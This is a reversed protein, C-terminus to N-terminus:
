GSFNVEGDNFLMEMYAAADAAIKNVADITKHQRVIEVIEDIEDIALRSEMSIQDVLEDDRAAHVILLPMPKFDPCFSVFDWSKADFVWMNGNMQPAHKKPASLEDIYRMHARPKPCKIEVGGGGDILGTVGDPSGSIRQDENLYGLGITTMSRGTAAEYARMAYPELETGRMMDYTNISATPKGSLIEAAVDLLYNRRTISPANGRGKSLLAQANSM